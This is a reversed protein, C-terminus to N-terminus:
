SSGNKREEIRENIAREWSKAEFHKAVEDLRDIIDSLRVAMLTLVKAFNGLARIAVELKEETTAGEFLKAEFPDM